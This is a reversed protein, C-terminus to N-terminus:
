FIKKLKDLTEKRPYGRKNKWDVRLNAFSKKSMGIEEAIQNYTKGTKKKYKDVKNILKDFINEIEKM